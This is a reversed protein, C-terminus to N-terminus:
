SGARRIELNEIETNIIGLYKELGLPQTKNQKQKRRETAEKEQKGREERCSAEILPKLIQM